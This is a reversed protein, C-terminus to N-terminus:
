KRGKLNNKINYIYIETLYSIVNRPEKKISLITKYYPIIDYLRIVEMWYNLFCKEFNKWKEKGLFIFPIKALNRIPIIWKPTITKKNVPIDDGWVNGLNYKELMDVYLKQNIKYKAPVNEFFKIYEDDWLPMRWNYGYFEYIKQATNVYSCQRDIFENYEYYLHDKSNDECLEGIGLTIENWLEKKIKDINEKTKLYGWLSFHKDILANLINEKREEKSALQNHSKMMKTIHSGSIFDGTNGNIFIADKDLLNLEELYKITSLSQIYPVSSYTQAYNLYNEYDKSTYFKRESTHSLPIFIWKYGLKQSIIKAINAEFNGETGYSYCLVNEVGLHKLASAVLRSDNGASLPIIIQRDGINKVLKKFINITVDYLEQLYENYDKDIIDGFYKYYQIYEHTNEEFIVLEGAKLSHLNKFITKNGITFGSMEIELKAQENIEKDFTKLSILNNPNYDVQFNNNIKTFFIPTTRVKDVSAFWFDERKVVLAFHGDIANIFESLEEKNIKSLINKLEEISHSNIYGKIYMEFIKNNELTHKEWFKNIQLKNNIM